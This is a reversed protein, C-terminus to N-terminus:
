HVTCIDNQDFISRDVVNYETILYRVGNTAPTNSYNFAKSNTMPDELWQGNEGYTFQFTDQREFEGNVDADEEYILEAIGVDNYVHRQRSISDISGNGDSDIEMNCAIIRGSDDYTYSLTSISDTENNSNANLLEKSVVRGSNDLTETLQEIEILERAANLTEESGQRQNDAYEYSYERIRYLSGSGDYSHSIMNEIDGSELYSLAYSSSTQIVTDTTSDVTESVWNTLKFNSDYTRRYRIIPDNPQLINTIVTNTALLRDDIRGHVQRKDYTPTDGNNATYRRYNYQTLGGFTNYNYRIETSHEPSGDGNTDNETLHKTINGKSDYESSRTSIDQADTDVREEKSLLYRDNFEFNVIQTDDDTKVTQVLPNVEISKGSLSYLYALPDAKDMVLSVAYGQQFRVVSPYTSFDYLHSKLPLDESSIQALQTNWDSTLLDIGNSSDTDEDMALLLQMLNSAKHLENESGYSYTHSSEFESQTQSHIRGFYGDRMAKRFSAATEPLNPFLDALSLSEAAAIQGLEIGGLSFTVTDGEDYNFEGNANVVGTYDGATYGLGTINSIQGVLEGPTSTGGSASGDNNPETSKSNSSSSDGCATLSSCIIAALLIEKNM